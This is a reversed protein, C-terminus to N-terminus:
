VMTTIMTTLGMVVLVATTTITTTTARLLTSTTILTTFSSSSASSASLLADEELLTAADADAAPDAVVVTNDNTTTTTGEDKGNEDVRAAVVEPPPQELEKEEEEEQMVGEEEEPVVVVVPTTTPALTSGVVAPVVNTTPAPVPAALAPPVDEEAAAGTTTTTTTTAYEPLNTPTALIDTLTEVCLAYAQPQQEQLLVPTYLQWEEEVVELPPGYEVVMDMWTSLLWYSYQQLPIPDVAINQYKGMEDQYPPISFYEQQLAEVLQTFLASQPTMGWQDYMLYNLGIMNVHHLVHKLVEMPQNPDGAALQIIVDCSSYKDQIQDLQQSEEQSLDGFINGIPVIPILTRKQALITIMDEQKTRNYTASEAADPILQNVTTAVKLLFDDSITEDSIAAFIMGRTEIYKQFPPYKTSDVIIETTSWLDAPIPGDDTTSVCNGLPRLPDAELAAAVAAMAAAEAQQVQDEWEQVAEAAVQLDEATPGYDALNTPVALLTKLYDDCLAWASPQDAELLAPTYLQWENEVDNPGYEAVVDMWTALLWFSYQKLLIDMMEEESAEPFSAEYGAVDFYQQQGSVQLEDSLQSTPTMGWQEPLLYHLGILNLHHLLHEVVEMPQRPNELGLEFIMDCSSYDAQIQDMQQFEEESLAGFGEVPVVPILTRKKAMAEIMAEQQERDYADDDPIMENLTTAVQQLFVDSVAEESIAALVIGRTEIYKQFPPYKTSDKMIGTTAWLDDPVPGDSSSTVCTGLPPPISDLDLAAATAYNNGIIALALLLVISSLYLSSM